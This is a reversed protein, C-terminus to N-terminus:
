AAAVENIAPADDLTKLRWEQAERLAKLAKYTQNDLTTQYKALLDSKVMPCTLKDIATPVLSTIQEVRDAKKLESRCWAVLDDIFDDLSTVSDLYEAPTLDESEADEVLQAFLLSTQAQLQDLTHEAFQEAETIVGKCWVMTEPDPPELDEAKLADPSYKGINLGAGVTDAIVQRTMNLAVDATEARILRRQRWLSVAIREVLALELTGVPRLDARLDELLTHFEDGSESPLLLKSSLIGHTTRNTSVVSKGEPTKPGTSKSANKQNARLQKESVM